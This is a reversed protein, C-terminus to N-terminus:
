PALQENLWIVIQGTLGAAFEKKLMGYEAPIGTRAEQFLHNADPIVVVRSRSNGGKQLAAEMPGRNLDASVQVDKGGYIALVPCSVSGIVEAPDFKLFQRYWPSRMAALEAGVRLRALSDASPLSKKQDPTLSSMQRELEQRHVAELIVTLSDLGNGSELSAFVAREIELHREIDARSAGRAADIREMQDLIVRDGCVAAGGLVVVTAVARDGSAVVMAVASGESHGLLAIRSTDIDSRTKLFRIGALVDGALDYVTCSMLDGTSSGTGRKDYRLVGFGHRTLSDSLVQFVPFGFVEEDRTQAGSGAILLIAPYPGPGIPLTMTGALAVTDSFFNVEEVRYPLLIDPRRVLEFRGTFGAQRFDGSLSDGRVTGDFVAVGPGAPLEFHVKPSAVSVNRLELGKAMQQPIDITGRLSDADVRFLVRIGLPFGGLTIAGEWQGALLHQAQGASVSMGIAMVLCLSVRMTTSIRESGM